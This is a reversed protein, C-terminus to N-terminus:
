GRRLLRSAGTVVTSALIWGVMTMAAAVWQATGALRWSHSQGLDVIPLLLDLAFLAPNWHPWAQDDVPEPRPGMGFYLTGAAWLVAMWLAARGPRYGYGVTIDQVWGWVVGAPPLTERRRRQKALLVERAQSDEGGQRLVQALTEYPEPNYEPTADALWAIRQELPVPGPSSLSEYSFGALDIGGRGPWSSPRDTLNGIRAGALSIRGSPPEDLTLRLEPTQIRRLSLQQTGTLRFHAKDAIVANGFRGDDLRIGGESTFRQTHVGAPPTGGGSYGSFWGSSLYLTHEVTVRAANLAYRGYPNHLASGRLSLRGGIRASRLSIEGTSELLEAEVDQAVTLGDAAISHGSRSQGVTLQNLVLDTGIHADTLRIGGPVTCQPLHLDGESNLRAAEIRPVVCRMLRATTFHCAPLLLQNDFRCERLEVYPQVQGGSLNLLGTILAGTLKLAAVRGPESPPGDLLLLAVIEARVTRGPEAEGFGPEAGDGDRGPESGRPGPVGPEPATDDAAATPPRGSTTGSPRPVTRETAGDATAGATGGTTGAATVRGTDDTPGPRTGPEGPVPSGTRLDCTAGRRFAHWMRLEAPTLDAPMAPQSM